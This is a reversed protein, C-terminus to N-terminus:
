TAGERLSVTVQMARVNHNTRTGTDTGPGTCSCNGSVHSHMHSHWRGGLTVAGAGGCWRVAVVHWWVAGVCRAVVCV